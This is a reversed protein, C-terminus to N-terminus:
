FRFQDDYYEEVSYVIWVLRNVLTRSINNTIQRQGFFLTGYLIIYIYM